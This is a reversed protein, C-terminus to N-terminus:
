RGKASSAGKAFYAQLEELFSPGLRAAFLRELEEASLEWNADREWRGGGLDRRSGRDWAERLDDFLARIQDPRESDLYAVTGWAHKAARDDWKGRQLAALDKFGLPASPKAWLSRLSKDWGGHEGVSVFGDRYPFCYLSRRVSLEVHWAWGQLLWYPQRGARRLLSLEAVRHVVENEPDFEEQGAAGLVVAGVLPAELAFGPHSSAHERWAALEPHMQVLRDLVGELDREDRLVLLVMAEADLPRAGAGWQTVSGRQLDDLSGGTRATPGEPDEPLVDGKGGHGAPTKPATSLRPVRRDLRALAAEAGALHKRVASSNNHEVLLLRGSADIDIRGGFERVWPLWTSLAAGVSADLGAPLAQPDVASGKWTVVVDKGANSAARTPTAFSWGAGIAVLIWAVFGMLTRTM